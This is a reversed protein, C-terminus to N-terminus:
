APTFIYTDNDRDLTAAKQVPGVDDTYEPALFKDALKAGKDSAKKVRKRGATALVSNLWLELKRQRAKEAAEDLQTISKKPFDDPLDSEWGRTAGLEKQFKLVDSYRKNVQWM